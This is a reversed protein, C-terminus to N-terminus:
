SGNVTQALNETPSQPRPPQGPCRPSPQWKCRYGVRVSPPQRARRVAQALAAAHGEGRAVTGSWQRSDRAGIDAAAFVLAGPCVATARGLPGNGPRRRTSGSAPPPSACAPAHLAPPSWHMCCVEKERPFSTGGRWPQCPPYPLSAHHPCDRRGLAPRRSRRMEVLGAGRRWFAHGAPPPCGQTAAPRRSELEAIAARELVGGGVTPCRAGAAGQVISLRKRARCNTLSKCSPRTRSKRPSALPRRRWRWGHLRNSPM